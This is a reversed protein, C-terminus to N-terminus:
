DGPQFPFVTSIAPAATVAATNLFTNLIRNQDVDGIIRTNSMFDWLYVNAGAINFEYHQIGRIAYNTHMLDGRRYNQPDARGLQGKIAAAAQAAQGNGQDRIVGYIWFWNMTNNWSGILKMIQEQLGVCVFTCELRAVVTSVEIAIPAGGARHDVYQMDLGPLKVETLVLHNSATNDTPGVGCFMNADELTWVPNAM